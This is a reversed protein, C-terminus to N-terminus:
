DSDSAYGGLLGALGVPSGQAQQEQGIGDKDQEAAELRPRKSEPQGGSDDGAVATAGKPKVRVIPRLLPKSAVGGAAKSSIPPRRGAAAAGASDRSSGPGPGPASGEEGGGGGAAQRGSAEAPLSLSLDEAGAEGGEAGGAAAKAEAAAAM